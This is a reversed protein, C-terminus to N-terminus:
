PGARHPSRPTGGRPSAASLPPQRAGALLGSATGVGGTPTRPAGSGRQIAYLNVDRFVAGSLNAGRLDIDRRLAQSLYAGRLDIGPAAADAIHSGALEGRQSKQRLEAATAASGDNREASM